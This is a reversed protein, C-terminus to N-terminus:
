NKYWARGVIALKRAYVTKSVDSDNDASDDSLSSECDESSCIPQEDNAGHTGNIAVPVDENTTGQEAVINTPDNPRDSKPIRILTFGGPLTVGPCNKDKKGPNCPPCIRFSYTGSQNLFSPTKLSPSVTLSVTSRASRQFPNIAALPVLQRGTPSEPDKKM